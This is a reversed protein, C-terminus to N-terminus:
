YLRNEIILFWRRHPTPQLFGEPSLTLISRSVSNRVNGGIAELTRGQKKVVIDCHLKASELWDVTPIEEIYPSLYAERSACILDGSKPSYAQRTHPLFSADTDAHSLIRTLYVWHAGAPPFLESSVGAAQMVWSVFAASWPQQCDHGDLGPQGVARWYLNIREAHDGDEDEWAGVHPISDGEETM